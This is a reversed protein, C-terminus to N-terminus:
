EEWLVDSLKRWEATATPLNTEWEHLQNLLDTKVCQLHYSRETTWPKALDESIFKAYVQVFYKPLVPLSPSDVEVQAVFAQLQQEATKGVAIV